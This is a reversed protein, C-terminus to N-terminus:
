VLVLGVLAIALVSGLPVPAFSASTELAATSGKLHATPAPSPSPKAGEEQTPGGEGCIQFWSGSFTDKFRLKGYNRTSTCSFMRTVAAWPLRDPTSTYLNPRGRGPPRVSPRFAPRLASPRVSPRVPPLPTKFSLVVIKM